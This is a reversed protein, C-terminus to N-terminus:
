MEKDEMSSMKQINNSEEATVSYKETEANEVYEQFKEILYKSNDANHEYEEADIFYNAKYCLREDDHSYHLIPIVGGTAVPMMTIYSYKYVANLDVDFSASMKSKDYSFNSLSLITLDDFDHGDSNTQSVFKEFTNQLEKFSEVQYNTLTYPLDSTVINEFAKYLKAVGSTTASVNKFYIDPVSTYSMNLYSNYGDEGQVKAHLDVNNEEDVRYSTLSLNLGDQKGDFYNEQIATQLMNNEVNKIAKQGELDCATLSVLCTVGLAFLKNTKKM